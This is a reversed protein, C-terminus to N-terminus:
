RRATLQFAKPNVGFERRFAAAFNSPNSYGVLAAAELVTAKGAELLARAREMRRARLYGFVTTGFV